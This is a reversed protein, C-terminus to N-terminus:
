VRDPADSLHIPAKLIRRGHLIGLGNLLNASQAFVTSAIQLTKLSWDAIGQL